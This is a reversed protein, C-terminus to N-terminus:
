EPVLIAFELFFVFKDLMAFLILLVMDLRKQEVNVLVPTMIVRQTQKRANIDTRGVFVGVCSAHIPIVEVNHIILVRRQLRFFIILISEKSVYIM